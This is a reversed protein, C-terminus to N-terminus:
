GDYRGIYQVTLSAVNTYLANYGAIASIQAPTLQYTQYDAAALEYVVQAGNTPSTGAVYVDRDSMWVGTLTEGDYEAISGWTVTLEGTITNLTGGYVTLPENGSDVLPITVSQGQYPEFVGDTVSVHRIMPSKITASGNGSYNYRIRSVGSIEMEGQISSIVSGGANLFQLWANSDSDPVVEGSFIVDTDYSAFVLPNRYLLNQGRNLLYDNGTKNVSLGNNRLWGEIDFLNKGTRTVTVSTVGSIHRINDSSPDGTGSQTPLIKISSVRLFSDETYFDVPNGSKSMVFDTSTLFNYLKSIDAPNEEFTLTYGSVVFYGGSGNVYLRKNLSDYYCSAKTINGFNQVDVTTAVSLSSEVNYWFTYESGDIYAQRMNLVLTRQM